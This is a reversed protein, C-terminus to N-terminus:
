HVLRFVCDYPMFQGPMWVCLDPFRDLNGINVPRRLATEGCNAAFAALAEDHEPKFRGWRVVFLFVSIGRSAECASGWDVFAKAVRGEAAAEAFTSFRDLVKVWMRHLLDCPPPGFTCSKLKM